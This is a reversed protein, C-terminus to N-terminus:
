DNGNFYEKLNDVWIREGGCIKTYHSILCRPITGFVKKEESFIATFLIENKDTFYESRIFGLRRLTLLNEETNECLISKQIRSNM